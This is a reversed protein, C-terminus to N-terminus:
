CPPPRPCPQDDWTPRPPGRAPSGATVPGCTNGPVLRLQAYRAVLTTGPITVLDESATGTSSGTGGGTDTAADLVLASPATSGAGRRATSHLVGDRPVLAVDGDLDTRYSRAGGQQLQRLTGRAPHGYPNGAGSSTITTGAGVAALFRPDQKASGHHPTKLVEAALPVGRSLLAQQATAEIDGTLLFRLGTDSVVRLVLSSNNPDSDTGRYALEPALVQWRAQAASREEGVVAARVPIRRAAAWRQVREREVAPEDLPGVQIEGISRGRLVGPLGEVHDAHFHTLVVLPIRDVGLRRLCGDIQGPDPGTDVVIASGPGASVVIADGQGVDCVVVFWGPPPWGPSLLHVTTVALLMGACAAAALRRVLPTRAVWWLVLTAVILLAAGAAGGRWPIAAGPLRAGVQAVRVLWAVPLYAVWAVLQALPLCVPAVLAAVVGLVTAPAVAPVAMLNAAISWLGLQASLAVVVPGCVVQAAAPVALADAAWGPLRRALGARWDPALIVLGATALVSLAFGPSAALDPSVLVLVIVAASLSPLANRERGTSLAVLAVLGMVAARLVSPSPRALIVFAGLLLAASPARLRLPVRLRACVLLAAALVVAVNTGSVAVLHTLGTTRFDEKLDPDLKSTDGVVLGPLLGREAAPLPAVARRLGARLSGAVRQVLSPPGLIRLEGRASLVAAVDDGREAPGLRGEVRIRQSPLLTLWAPDQALVLVPARLHVTRGAVELQEVRVRAVVLERVALVGSGARPVVVRPDDTVVALATVAAGRGAAEYLPGTTRAHVRASASLGAAAACVLVGAILTSRRQLSMLAALVLGASAAAVPGPPLYLAALAVLWVALAPLLLRLDPPEAPDAAM